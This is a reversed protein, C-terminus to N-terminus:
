FRRGAALAAREIRDRVETFSEGFVQPEMYKALESFERHLARRPFKNRSLQRFAYKDVQDFGEKVCTALSLLGLPPETSAGSEAALARFIQAPLGFIYALEPVIRLVFERAAVCKGIRHEQTGFVREMETLTDGAQWSDLLLFIRPAAYKGRDLEANLAKYDSGLLGELSERRILVPILHPRETLWTVLWTRWGRVSGDHEIAQGLAEGIDSVVSVPVGAAAALRDAWGLVVKADLTARRALLAAELRTDIWAQDGRTKARYASFTRKLLNRTPVDRGGDEADDGIPMRGILYTVMPSPEEAGDHIQDLIATMPDDISLCQDSQAFIAKLDTWHNHITNTENNFDVVKSPVVLVFGYSGDGARGARGASNLLEYAELKQMKDADPDFRSDGGIIVVESPLNMGQALTSTAVLANIGDTRKFLSEHLHREVSLLLGHHCTCSSILGGAPDVELYVRDAGGAEDVAIAYLRKEEANLTCQPKGLNRSIADSASNTLPITQTFVLTKIRQRSTSAAIASAVQNGNPTLYWKRNPTTGTALTVTENLLPILAYDKRAHSQWTQHLCFFGFPNVNLERKLSAPADKNTVNRRVEVLRSNLASIQDAGYVVCGRVQRTPKWTLALPLCQRGTLDQLWGAIEECNMMMASLFLLDANPASATFNLVCLMADIARRSRDISRPHMLHCEDFILLGVNTFISPDFSMMALCREPTMVSLVPLAESDLNFLSEEIPESLVESNPFTATLAKTTQDVLSLTPALFVVKVGRLLAVAIKLEALTSKGAGTPFSIAASVGPQLYGEAIAQRHNRWLYPRRDAIDRMSSKWRDSAVDGPAPVNVLAAVSLSNAAASLLSALHLPGPYVGYPNGSIGSQSTDLQEVCLDIAQQFLVMPDTNLLEIDESRGLLAAALARVGHFLLYYLSRMAQTSSDAELFQATSPVAIELLKPLRGTALFQIAWLLATEVTDDTQILIAKAMESADASAEAILFLLTASVEPAISNLLLRTPEQYPNRVRNALLTVHHAAGAVFAAATVNEREKSISVLAENSYALRRMQLVIADIDSSLAPENDEERLRIRASVISAYANTLQQPLEALDLEALATARSILAVTEADFM